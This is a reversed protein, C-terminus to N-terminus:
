IKVLIFGCVLLLLSALLGRLNEFPLRVWKKGTEIQKAEHKKMMDKNARQMLILSGCITIVGVLKLAQDLSSTM